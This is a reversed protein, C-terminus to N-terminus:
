VVAFIDLLADLLQLIFEVLLTLRLLLPRLRMRSSATLMRGFSGLPSGVAELFRECLALTNKNLLCLAANLGLNILCLCSVFLSILDAIWVLEDLSLFLKVSEVSRSLEPNM